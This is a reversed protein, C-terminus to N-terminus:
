IMIGKLLYARSSATGKEGTPYTHTGQLIFIYWTCVNPYIQIFNELKGWRFDCTIRHM